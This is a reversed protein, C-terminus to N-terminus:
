PLIQPDIETIRDVILRSCKYLTQGLTYDTVVRKLMNYEVGSDQPMLGTGGLVVACSKRMM